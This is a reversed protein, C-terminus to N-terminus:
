QVQATTSATIDIHIKGRIQEGLRNADSTTLFVWQVAVTDGVVLRFDQTMATQVDDARIRTTKSAVGTCCHGKLVAIGKWYKDLKSPPVQQKKCNWVFEKWDPSFWLEKSKLEEVFKLPVEIRIVWTESNPCRRAAWLRYEEAVIPQPTWYWANSEYNFDGGPHSRLVGMDVSGDSRIFNDEGMEDAAKGKYLATHGPRVPSATQVAVWNVPLHSTETVMNTTVSMESLQASPPEHGFIGEVSTREAKKAASRKAHQKLRGRLEQLTLYNTKLTDTLWYQLTETEFIQTFRPDTIADQSDKNIGLSTMAPRPALDRMTPKKLQSLHGRVFDLLGAESDGRQTWNQFITQATQPEFGMIELTSVSDLFEPLDFTRSNSADFSHFRISTTSQSSRVSSSSSNSPPPSSLFAASVTRKGGKAPLISPYEEELLQAEKPSLDEPTALHSPIAPSPPTPSAM